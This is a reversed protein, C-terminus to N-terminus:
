SRSAAKPEHMPCGNHQGRFRASSTYTTNRARMVGGLPRHAALGHWPSFALGEDIAQVGEQSWSDQAEVTLRAVPLYPSETEPWIVSADEIPMTELNTCLQVRFEWEGGHQAFHASVADRLANPEANADIPAGTLKSLDFIPFVAVKAVYDGYLVPVQSYFTEGLINTEPHGGMTTVMPSKGGFAELVSETGRAVASLVKKAGEAKDTTAALMKLNALFKKPTPAAFAPANVLVFDQTVDNEGGPLRAGEVGIIKVALGRPTSVSDDLIDGPLTSFRMAIDYEGGKSFMGQALEAPLGAIVKMKGRLVGHSKAHVSRIAHGSNEFTTQSIKGMTEILGQITEAEDDAPQEMGPTFRLASVHSPTTFGSM